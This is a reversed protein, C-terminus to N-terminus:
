VAEKTIVLVGDAALLGHHLPQGSHRLCEQFKNVVRDWIVAYGPELMEGENLRRLVPEVEGAGALLAAKVCDCLEWEDCLRVAGMGKCAACQADAYRDLADFDPTSENLWLHATALRLMPEAVREAQRESAEQESLRRAARVAGRAFAAADSAHGAEIALRCFRVKDTITNRIIDTELEVMTRLEM